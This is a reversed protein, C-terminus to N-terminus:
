MQPELAIGRPSYDRTDIEVPTPYQVREGVQYRNYASRTLNIRKNLYLTKDHRHYAGADKVKFRRRIVIYQDADDISAAAHEGRDVVTGRGPEVRKEIVTTDTLLIREGTPTYDKDDALQDKSPYTNTQGVEFERYGEKNLKIVETGCMDVLLPIQYITKPGLCKRIEIKRDVGDTSVQLHDGRDVLVGRVTHEFRKAVVEIKEYPLNIIYGDQPNSENSQAKAVPAGPTLFAMALGLAAVLGGKRRQPRRLSEKIQM